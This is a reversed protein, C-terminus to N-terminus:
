LAKVKEIYWDFVEVLAEFHKPDSFEDLSITPRKNLSEESLSITPVQNFRALLERQMEEEKFPPKRTQSFFYFELQGTTLVAFPHHKYPGLDLVPVFSGYTKGKGWWIRHTNERGWDLLQHAVSVARPSADESIRLFFNEETWQIKSEIGGRKRTQAEATQGLVTPVLTRLGDATFQKVEVAIVEAPDCQENLFEVIRQLEMPIQDAVFVLRIKGAQLNTKVKQWYEMDDLDDELFLILEQDADQGNELCTKEFLSKLHEVPWYVVANAAYDLM